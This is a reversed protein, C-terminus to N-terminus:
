SRSKAIRIKELHVTVRETMDVAIVRAADVKVARDRLKQIAMWIDERLVDSHHKPDTVVARPALCVCKNPKSRLVNKRHVNISNFILDCVGAM